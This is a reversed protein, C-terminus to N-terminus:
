VAGALIGKQMDWRTSMRVAITGDHTAIVLASDDTELFALLRDFLDRATPHDLQGTPEDALILRPRTVLTRALVVRQSQGGSLEEPLQDILDVLALQDLIEEANQRAQQPRDGRLLLPLSVNEAVTLAPLLDPTQLAISLYAPRLRLGDGHAPWSLRGATPADLGALMHLLTSKGSGSPGCIAIRDGPVVRCNAQSVALLNGGGQRFARQLGVAEVLISDSSNETM